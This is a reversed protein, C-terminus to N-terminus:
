WNRNSLTFIVEIILPKTGDHEPIHASKRLFYQFNIDLYYIYNVDLLSAHFMFYPSVISINHKLTNFVSIDSIVHENLCM